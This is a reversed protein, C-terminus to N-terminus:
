SEINFDVDEADKAHEDADVEVFVDLLRFLWDTEPEDGPVKHPGQETCHADQSAESLQRLPRALTSGHVGLSKSL